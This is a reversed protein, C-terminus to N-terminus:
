CCRTTKGSGQEGCFLHLGYENFEGSKKNIRDLWFQAPFEWVIKKFFSTQKYQSINLPLEMKKIFRYYIFWSLFSIFEITLFIVVSFLVCKLIMSFIDLIEMIYGRRTPLFSKVRLFVSWLFRFTHYSFSAIIIPMLLKIPLLYCASKCVSILTTAVGTPIEITFVPVAVLLGVVILIVAITFITEVM